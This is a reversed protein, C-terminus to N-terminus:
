LLSRPPTQSQDSVTSARAWWCWWWTGRLKWDISLDAGFNSRPLVSWHAVRSLGGNWNSISYVFIFDSFFIYTSFTKELENNDINTHSYRMLDRLIAFCDISSLFFSSWFERYVSHISTLMEGRLLKESLCEPLNPIFAYINRALQFAM